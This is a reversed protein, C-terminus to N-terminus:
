QFDKFTKGVTPHRRIAERIRSMMFGEIDDLVTASVRKCNWGPRLAETMSLIYRKLEARNIISTKKAQKAM